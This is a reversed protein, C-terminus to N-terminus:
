LFGQCNFFFGCVSWPIGDLPKTGAWGNMMKGGSHSSGNGQEPISEVSPFASSFKKHLSRMMSSIYKYPTIGM